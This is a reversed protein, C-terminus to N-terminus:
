WGCPAQEAGRGDMYACSSLRGCNWCINVQGRGDWVIPARSSLASVEAVRRRRSGPDPDDLAAGMQEHVDCIPPGGSLARGNLCDTNDPLATGVGMEWLMDGFEAMPRHGLSEGDPNDDGGNDAWIQNLRSRMKSIAISLERYEEPCQQLWERHDYARM